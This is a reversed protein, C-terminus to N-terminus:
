GAAAARIASKVCARFQATGRTTTGVCGQIAARAQAARAPRGAMRAPKVAGRLNAKVCRKFTASGKCAALAAQAANVLTEECAAASGFRAAFRDGLKVQLHACLNTAVRAGRDGQAAQASAALAMVVLVAVGIVALEKQITKMAAKDPIGAVAGYAGHLAFTFRTV